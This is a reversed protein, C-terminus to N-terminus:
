HGGHQRHICSQLDNINLVKNFLTQFLDNISLVINMHLCNLESIYILQFKKHFKRM